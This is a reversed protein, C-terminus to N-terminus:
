FECALAEQMKEELEIEARVSILREEAGRYEIQVTVYPEEWKELDDPWEVLCVGPQM